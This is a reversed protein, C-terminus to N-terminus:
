MIGGYDGFVQDDREIHVGWDEDDPALSGQLMVYGEMSMGSSDTNGFGIVLVDNCEDITVTNVSRIVRM